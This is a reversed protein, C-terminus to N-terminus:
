NLKGNLKRNLYRDIDLISSFNEPILEIDEVKIKFKEELFSVVELIGTSDIIGSEFFLTDDQLKEAEGFLFNEIIFERVVAKYNMTREM